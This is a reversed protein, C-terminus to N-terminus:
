RRSAPLDSHVVRQRVFEGPRLTDQDAVVVHAGEKVGALAESFELTRFGVQVTRTDIMGHAVLLVQDVLLARTPILLANEHRGTIINMEGTMGAMLNEPPNELELVVTYRQTEPDAAPLISSVTARFQRTRYADMQLAAKM